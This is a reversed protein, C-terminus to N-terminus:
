SCSPHKGICSHFVIFRKCLLHNEPPSLAILGKCKGRFGTVETFATGIQIPFWATKRLMHMWTQFAIAHYDHSRHFSAISSCDPHFYWERTEPASGSLLCFCICHFSVHLFRRCSPNIVFLRLIKLSFTMKQLKGPFWCKRSTAPSYKAPFVGPPSRFNCKSYGSSYLPLLDQYQCRGATVLYDTSFRTIGQQVVRSSHIWSQLLDLM